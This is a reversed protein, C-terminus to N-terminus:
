STLRLTKLLTELKWSGDYRIGNIYFTPTGNVGGRVGSLFDERVRQAYAHSAMDHNFQIIDLGLRSAYKELHNDDLAQQHEYPYDHMEWFKNQAAAAEAAEAAHQAHPHIQTIPFNRFIFRLKNGLNKQVQKIIPYADGCYPCEYDGYEVLTVPATDLGQIHDRQGVPLTLKVTETEM